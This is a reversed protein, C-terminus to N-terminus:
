KAKLDAEPRMLLLDEGWADLTGGQGAERAADEVLAFLSRQLDVDGTGVILGIRDLLPSTAWGPLPFRELEWQLYKNYPRPRRDLAFLLELLFGMSDAADLHAALRNGDRANKVSRYLSNAYADLWGAAAAIAEARDRRGKAGVIESIQGDLRDVVVHARSLAYREHGDLQRFQDVTTVVVDLEASRHGHLGSLAADAGEGLVVYVDRDSYETAMGDHAHSGKLVLGVVAPDGDIRSLLEAYTLEPLM